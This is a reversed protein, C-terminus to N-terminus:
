LGGAVSSVGPLAVTGGNAGGGSGNSVGAPPGFVWTGDDGPGRTSEGSAAGLASDGRNAGDLSISYSGATVGTPHHFRNRNSHTATAPHRHSGGCRRRTLIM